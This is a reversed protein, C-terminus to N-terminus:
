TIAGERKKTRQWNDGNCLHKKIRKMQERLDYKTCSMIYAIDKYPLQEYYRYWILEWDKECLFNLIYWILMKKDDTTYLMILKYYNM